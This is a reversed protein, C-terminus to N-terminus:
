PAPGVTWAVVEAGRSTHIQFAILSMAGCRPCWRRLRGARATPGHHCSACWPVYRDGAIGAPAPNPPALEPLPKPSM